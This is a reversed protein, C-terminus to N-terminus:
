WIYIEEEDKWEEETIVYNLRNVFHFGACVFSNEDGDIITWLKKSNDALQKKVIELDKGYTELMMEGADEKSLGEIVTYIDDFEILKAVM